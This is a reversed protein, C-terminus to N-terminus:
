ESLPSTWSGRETVGHEGAGRSSVVGGQGVGGVQLHGTEPVIDTPSAQTGVIAAANLFGDDNDLMSRPIRISVRSGRFVPKVRGTVVGSSNFIPVTSDAGYATLTLQYDSDMGTSGGDRRFEDVTTPSGTTPDQDTDLDVFGIMANADGSTPSILDSSFDLQVTIGGTDRTITMATLDWEVGRNGFTDGTPDTVVGTLVGAGPGGPGPDGPGSDGTGPGSADGGCGGVLGAALIAAAFRMWIM